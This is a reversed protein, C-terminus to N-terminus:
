EKLGGYIARSISPISVRGGLLHVPLDGGDQHVVAGVRHDGVQAVLLAGEVVASLAAVSLDM